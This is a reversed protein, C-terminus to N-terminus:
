ENVDRIAPSDSTALTQANSEVLRFWNLYKERYRFAESLFAGPCFLGLGKGM